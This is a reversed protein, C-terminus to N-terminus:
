GRHGRRSVVVEDRWGGSPGDPGVHAHAASRGGGGTQRHARGGTESVELCRISAEARRVEVVRLSEDVSQSVDHIICALLAQGAPRRSEVLIASSVEVSRFRGVSISKATGPGHRVRGGVAFEGGTWVSGVLWRARRRLGSPQGEGSRGTSMRRRHPPQRLRGGPAPFHRTSIDSRWLQGPFERM